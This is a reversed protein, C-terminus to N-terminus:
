NDNKMLKILPIIYWTMALSKKFNSSIITKKETFFQLALYTNVETIALIFAFVYNEWRNTTWTSEISLGNKMGCDHRKSNHNDVAGGYAFHNGIVEAYKFRTTNQRSADIKVSDQQGDKIILSGYTSMMM